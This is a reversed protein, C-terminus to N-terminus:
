LFEYIEIKEIRFSEQGGNMEYNYNVGNFYQKIKGRIKSYCRDNCKHLFLGGTFCIEYSKIYYGIIKKGKIAPYIKSLNASFLFSKDDAKKSSELGFGKQAYGGFIFGKDSKIIVLINKKNYDGIKDWHNDSGKYLLKKYNINISKDNQKIYDLIFESSNLLIDNGFKEFVIINHINGVAILDRNCLIFSGLMKNNIYKDFFTSQLVLPNKYTYKCIKKNIQIIVFARETNKIERPEKELIRNAEDVLYEIKIIKIPTNLTYSFLTFVSGIKIITNKNMMLIKVRLTEANKVSKMSNETFVSNCSYVDRVSFGKVNFGIIDGALTENYDYNHMEISKCKRVEIKNGTPICLNTDKELKGSLIKGEFVTGFGTIRDKHYISIILPSDFDRKPPKLEDLSEILTKGKYWNMKNIHINDEDEYRNILNHGTYGSYAIVQINNINFGINICLNIMYKKIKKFIIESYKSDKTIDMKNVAIIIQRINMTFAFILYDKIHEKDIIDNIDNKAEVIIVAAEALSLGKIINKKYKFSGPLDILSYYYKATEFKRIHPNITKIYTREDWINDLLWSYRYSSIGFSNAANTTKIFYDQSINGTSYLLHGITTSKGSNKNGIFAVNILIKRNMKNYINIYDENIIQNINEESEFLSKNKEYYSKFKNIYNKGEQLNFEPFISLIKGKNACHDFIFLAFEKENPIYRKLDNISIKTEYYIKKFKYIGIIRKKLKQFENEETQVYLNDDMISKDENIIRFLIRDSYFCYLNDKFSSSLKNDVLIGNFVKLQNQLKKDNNILYPLIYRRTSVFGQIHEILIGKHRIKTLITTM